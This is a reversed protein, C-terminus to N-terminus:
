VFQSIVQIAALGRREPEACFNSSVAATFTSGNASIPRPTVGLFAVIKGGPEEYVLSEIGDQRWPNELFVDVLWNRYEVLSDSQPDGTGMVRRHLDAVQSIDDRRFPRVGTM